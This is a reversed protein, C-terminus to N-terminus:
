SKGNGSLIETISRFLDPNGLVILTQGPKLRTDKSFYPNLSGNEVIVIPIVEKPLSSLAVEQKVDFFGVVMDAKREMTFIVGGVNRSISAAATIRGVIDEYPIVEDAGATRFVDILSSQKVVCITNLPPNIRQVKLTVLLSKTDDEMAIVVSSASPIGASMLDREDEPNGLIVHDEKLAEFVEQSPTLVIHDKGLKSLRQAASIIVRGTGILVIHDKMHSGRWRARADKWSSRRVVTNVVSQIISTYLGVAMIITVVLLLKEVSPMANINPAYLGVTTVVNVGAYIASVWDLHQYNVFIVANSFVVLALLFIQPFIKRLVSYPAVIFEAIDLLTSRLSM